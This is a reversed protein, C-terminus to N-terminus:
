GVTIQNDISKVGKVARVAREVQSKLADSKVNGTLTAKGNLVTVTVGLTSLTPDNSLKKDVATQISSDDPVNSRTSGGSTAPAPQPQGNIIVPAPQSAPAPQNVIVPPQQAPQQVITTPPQQVQATNVNADNQQQNMMFLIIIAALAIVGVVIAALAAGSIGSRDREPYRATETQVVERRANPTEVVVRRSEAQKEMDNEGGNSIALGFDFLTKESVTDRSNSSCVNNRASSDLMKSSILAFKRFAEASGSIKDRITPGIISRIIEPRSQM